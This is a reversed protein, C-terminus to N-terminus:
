IKQFVKSCNFNNKISFSSWRNCRSLITSFPAHRIPKLRRRICLLGFHWMKGVNWGHCVIFCHWKSMKGLSSDKKLGFEMRNQQLQGQYFGLFFPSKICFSKRYNDSGLIFVLSLWNGCAIRAATVTFVRRIPKLNHPLISRYQRSKILSFVSCVANVLHM